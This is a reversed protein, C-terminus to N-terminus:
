WSGFSGRLKGSVAALYTPFSQVSLPLSNWFLDSVFLLFQPLVSDFLVLSPSLRKSGHKSNVCLNKENGVLLVKRFHFAPLEQGWQEVVILRCHVM